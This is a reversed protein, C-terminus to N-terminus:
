GVLKQAFPIVFGYFDARTIDEFHLRPIINNELAAYM